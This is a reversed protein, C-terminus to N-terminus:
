DLGLSRGGALLRDIGTAANVALIQPPQMDSVFRLVSVSGHDIHLRLAARTPMGLYHALALQILYGHTVVLITALQPNDGAAQELSAVARRRVSELDEGDPLGDAEGTFFDQFEKNKLIEDWLAGEWRGLDVEILRPDRGIGLHYHAAFVEATQIARALPSALIENLDLEGLFQLTREAQQKGEPTLGIDRRGLMRGQERFMTEGTRVLLLTTPL